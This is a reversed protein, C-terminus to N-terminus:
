KYKWNPGYLATQQADYDAEWREEFGDWPNYGFSDVILEEIVPIPYTNNSWIEGYGFGLPEGVALYFAESPALHLYLFLERVEVDLEPIYVPYDAKIYIGPYGTAPKSWRLVANRSLVEVLAQRVEPHVNYGYLFDLYNLKDLLVASGTTEGLSLLDSFGMSRSIEEPNWRSSDWEMVIQTVEPPVQELAQKLYTYHSRRIDEAVPSTSDDWKLVSRIKEGELAMSIYYFKQSEFDELIAVNVAQVMGDLYYCLVSAFVDRTEFHGDAVVPVGQEDPEGKYFYWKGGGELVLTEKFTSSFNGMIKQLSGLHDQVTIVRKDVVPDADACGISMILVGFLLCCLAVKTVTKKTNRM